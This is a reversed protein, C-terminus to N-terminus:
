AMTFIASHACSGPASLLQVRRLTRWRKLKSVTTSCIWNVPAPMRTTTTHLPSTIGNMLPGYSRRLAAALLPLSIRTPTAPRPLGGSTGAGGSDVLNQGAGNRITFRIQGSSQIQFHPVGHGGSVGQQVSFDTAYSRANVWAALSIANTDAPIPVASDSVAQGDMDIFVPDEGAVTSHTFNIAGGGRKFTTPDNSIVGTTNLSFPQDLVNRTSDQVKANFGNGSGDMVTNTFNDYDYYIVLGGTVLPQAVVASGGVVLLVAIAVVASHFLSRTAMTM